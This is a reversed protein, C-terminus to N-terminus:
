IAIPKKQILYLQRLQHQHQHQHLLITLENQPVWTTLIIPYNQMNPPFDYHGLSAEYLMTQIKFKITKRAYDTNFNRVSNAVEEGLIM